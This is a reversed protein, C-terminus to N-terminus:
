GFTAILPEKDQRNVIVQLMKLNDVKNLAEYKRYVQKVSLQLKHALTKTLSTELIYKIHDMRTSVNTAMCYFNYLGRLVSQYRSIITYDDDSVLEPRHIVKNGKSYHDLIKATAKRPMILAVVGNAQRRSSDRTVTLEYGLFKAKETAAHTVLTKEI